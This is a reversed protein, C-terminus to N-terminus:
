KEGEGLFNKYKEDYLEGSEYAHHMIEAFCPECVKVFEEESSGPFLIMRERIADEDTREEEFFGSCNVCTFETM